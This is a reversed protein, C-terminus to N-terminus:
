KTVQIFGLIYFYKYTEFIFKVKRNITFFHLAVAHYAINIWKVFKYEGTCYRIEWM